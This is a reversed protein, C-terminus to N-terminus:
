RCASACDDDGPHPRAGREPLAPQDRLHNGPPAAAAGRVAAGAWTELAEPMLTHNTYSVAQPHHGLGRGLLGHEDVLLRMLEAPVLAPHTDNLHVSNHRGFDHLARGERLHRALMDQLSAEGAPVGAQAATRARCPHQRGPVAGLEARRRGAHGAAVGHDGRCFAAFDIPHESARAVPAADVVRETGHGPVIFDNAQAVVARGADLSRGHRRGAGAASASRYRLEPRQLRGPNGMSSGTTRADRDPARRSRGPRVHRVPLAAGYGFSPMSRSIRSPSNMTKTPGEPQPLDVSSRVIAPRSSMVAPSSYMPPSSTLSTGGASRPMAMTNWDYASYGCMFRYSLM